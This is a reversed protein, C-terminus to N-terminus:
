EPVSEALARMGDMGGMPYPLAWEIGRVIFGVVGRDARGGVLFFCIVLENRWLM